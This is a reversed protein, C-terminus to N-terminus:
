SSFIKTKIKMITTASLSMLLLNYPVGYLFHFNLPSYDFIIRLKSKSQEKRRSQSIGKENFEVSTLFSPINATKAKNAINFFYAYDEAAQYKDPYKGVDEVVSLRYMTSPHILSCRISMQRRIKNHTTPPKKCFVQKGSEDLWRVWSGVIDINKNQELFNEQVEFRDDVCVDGCDIRAIFQHKKVKLIHELGHNLAYSIGKNENLKIIELLVNQNLSDNLRELDPTELEDSGDDVILVDIGHAHKISGLTKKLCGLNNYHPILVITKIM